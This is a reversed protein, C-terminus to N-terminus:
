PAEREVKQRMDPPLEAVQARQSLRLAELYAVVAWREDRDLEHAYSPMLGYGHSIVWFVHGPWFHPHLRGPAQAQAEAQATPQAATGASLGLETSGNEAAALDTGRVAPVPLFPQVLGPPNGGDPVYPEPLWPPLQDPRLLQHPEHVILSPPPRLPMKKAVRSEGDGLLGHCAACYIEFGHKGKKLLEADVKVPLTRLYGQADRGTSLPDDPLPMERALVHQPLPRMARGDAFLTSAEYAQYKKQAVMPAPDYCGAGFAGAALLGVVALSSRPASM